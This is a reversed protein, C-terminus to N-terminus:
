CTWIADKVKQGQGYPHRDGGSSNGLSGKRWPRKMQDQAMHILLDTIYFVPDKEDMGINVEIKKGEKTHIVGVLALPICPWQYKKIGGYYHTRFYVM